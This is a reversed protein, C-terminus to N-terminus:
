SLHNIEVYRFEMETLIALDEGAEKQDYDESDYHWEIELPINNEKLKRLLIFIDYLFKASSSNFYYLRVIVRLPSASTFKFEGELTDNVFLELWEVVPYYLARVDEPSSNGSILLLGEAPSFNIEPSVPTAEIHLRKM